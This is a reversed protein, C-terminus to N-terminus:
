SHRQTCVSGEGRDHGHGWGGRGVIEGKGPRSCRVCLSAVVGLLLLLMAAGPWVLETEVNM